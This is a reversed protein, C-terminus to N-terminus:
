FYKELINQRKAETQSMLWMTEGMPKDHHSIIVEVIGRNATALFQITYDSNPTLKDILVRAKDTEFTTYGAVNRWTLSLGYAFFKKIGMRKMMAQVEYLFDDWLFQDDEDGQPNFEALITRNKKIAEALTPM